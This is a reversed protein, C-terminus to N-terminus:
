RSHGHILELADKLIILGDAWLLELINLNSAVCVKVNSLNRAAREIQEDKARIILLFKRGKQLTALNDLKTKFEKTKGSPVELNDILLIRDEKAKDTLVSLIGLTRTKRNIKKSFNRNKLPGFTIGGGRWLPSRISGARARGTGKQRWPKKGGGRVEGRTKTSAIPQRMNAQLATAVFHVVEPKIKAIGFIKPNLEVKEGTAEGKQNYIILEAM